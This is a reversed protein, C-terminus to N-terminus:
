LLLDPDLRPLTLSSLHQHAFPHTGLPLAEGHGLLADLYGHLTYGDFSGHGYSVFDGVRRLDDFFLDYNLLPRHYLLLDADALLDDLVDLNDLFVNAPLLDLYDVLCTAVCTRLLTCHM